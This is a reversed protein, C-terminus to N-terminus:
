KVIVPGSAASPSGTGRANIAAVTFSYRKGTTLGTITEGTAATHFVRALQPATGLYPTVVYGTIVSGNNKPAVWHLTASRQGPSGTVGTPATPVGVTVTASASSQPGLGRANSGAVKFTYQKGNTLGAVTETTAKSPYTRPALAVGGLYPTIVYRTIASGNNAGAAWHVTASGNGPAAVPPGAASPSGPIVVPSLASPPGAGSANYAAVTIRFSRGNPLGVRQTTATTLGNGEYFSSGLYVVMAYGMIASGNAPPAKISIMVAGNAPAASVITPRGPRGIVIVATPGSFAGTGRNSQAAVTFTYSGGNTLANVTATTATSVVQQPQAVGSLFPEVVYGTITSGNTTAPAVWRLAAQASGAPEAVVATPASPSGVTVSGSPLSEPGAGNADVASVTFTYTTGNSLGTAVAATQSVPFSQPTQAAGAVYPTVRYGAIPVGGDTLPPSWSIDAQGDDATAAVSQPAGARATVSALAAGADLYGGGVADPTGNTAVARGTTRLTAMVQAPSLLPDKAILLAGIAAAQPAAASTGYFRYVGGIQELFFSTRVGDTAAFDPKNLVQPSALPTTSPTPQFYLTEPGRSSFTESSNSNYPIAATSGVTGTGNHGFITPGVIDGGASTNFQVATIGFSNMLVFKLRPNASGSYKAIVIRVAQTVATNNTYDLFEFPAGEASNKVESEALISGAGNIAFVDFDTAVAGRPEAWQLNLGFGGGSTVTIQDSNSTGGSADFNQCGMVPEDLTPCPTPRFAPAEYSSVNNGGVIVNSNGAASFYPVGAASAANVANAIPGDQFFPEDLYTVDDVLVNAHNVTRLNTIQNALDLEGNDATAFALHAGPALGHALQAMARGEDLQGGGSYDSQVTVPSTYGCPNGPGPLEGAAVDDAARTVAGPATDFSDSLLGITEGTGDVNNATRAAAVNMLSDGESVIPACVAPTVRPHPRLAGVRGVEPALVETVYRVPGYSAIARLSKPTVAATVISYTRSVNVVQAGLARLRAVAPKSPSSMRIEVLVRGGARRILRGAGSVPLSLSRAEARASPFVRATALAALRPSLKGPKGTVARPAIGAAPVAPAPSLVEAQAPVHGVVLAATLALCGLGRRGWM